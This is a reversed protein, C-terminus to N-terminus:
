MTALLWSSATARNRALIWPGPAAIFESTDVWGFSMEAIFDSMALRVLAEVELRRLGPAWFQGIEVYGDSRLFARARIPPEVVLVDHETEDIRDIIVNQEM